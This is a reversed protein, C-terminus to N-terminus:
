RAVEREQATSPLVGDLDIRTRLQRLNFLGYALALPVAPLWRLPGLVFSPYEMIAHNFGWLAGILLSVTMPWVFRGGGRGLYLHGTGPFLSNLASAIRVSNLAARNRLRSVLEVKVRNEHVGSVMKFCNQCHVGKRCTRCMIRGCIRCEFLDWGHTHRSYHRFRFYLALSALLLAALVWSGQIDLIGARVKVRLFDLDVLSHWSAWWAQGMRLMPDMSKRTAPYVPFNEDNDKLWQTVWPADLEAAQDLFQKHRASNNSYLEAQSSNFWAEVMTPAQRRAKEFVSAAKAYEFTAMDLNGSNLTAFVNGPDIRLAERGAEAARLYNGQKKYQLSLALARYSSDERSHSPFSVVREALSREYGRSWSQHYLSVGQRLDLHRCISREWMLLFPVLAIGMLVVKLVSKEDASCHKWLLSACFLGMVVYGAGGVALSLPVLAIALYRVRPEVAQPLKEAWPHAIRQFHRAFLILLGLAGFIGLGVRLSRSLNVLFLSQVDYYRLLSMAEILSGWVFGLDWDLPSHEHFHLLLNQFPAWPSIPDLRRAFEMGQRAVQFRGQRITQRVKWLELKALDPVRTYGKELMTRHVEMQWFHARQYMGVEGLIRAMEYNLGLNGKSQRAATALEPEGAGPRSKEEAVGLAFNAWITGLASQSPSGPAPTTAAAEASTVATALPKLQDIIRMRESESAANVFLKQTGPIRKQFEWRSAVSERLSELVASQARLSGMAAAVAILLIMLRKNVSSEGVRMERGMM